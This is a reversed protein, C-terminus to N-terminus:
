YKIVKRLLFYGITSSIILSFLYGYGIRSTEADIQWILAPFMVASLMAILSLIVLILIKTFFMINKM